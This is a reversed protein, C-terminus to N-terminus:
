ARSRRPAWKRLAQALMQQSFPKTLYDRAGLAHAEDRHKQGSRSTVVVVPIHRLGPSAAISQILEYGHMRPMELDTFVLDFPKRGLLELADHGDVALTVEAGLETLLKEAVKRVSLSDDAFLVRAPGLPGAEIAESTTGSGAASRPDLLGPVDLILILEGDGSVTVGSLLPHGTLLEGLSKVVVEEQGLLRDVAVALRREGARLLVAVGPAAEDRGREPRGLVTDLSHLIHHGDELKVRRVGASELVPVEDLDILREAFALPVAFVQGSHRLLLARTIALTLPLTITFTTGHGPDSRVRIDGGLKEIERRVVDAGLGRGSVDDVVGRTSVGPHFLADAVSPHAVETEPTIVGLKVAAEHLATLNLGAGDDAAEIVILGSEHRAALSITGVPDKGAAARRELTEVGHAVANRVLHLLPVYLKDVITKDLDVDEGITMVRVSKGERQAADRVPLRLRAFLDEVPVMRARTIEGQLGSVITGFAAADEAFQNLVEQIQAQVSEVDDAISGLSRALINVEGYQDLELEGFAGWTPASAAQMGGAAARPAAVSFENRERFREVAVNLRQHGVALQRQMGRLRTVRRLLRSRGVVLEGTLNMLGDLRESSVRVSRKDAEVRDTFRRRPASSAGSSLSARADSSMLAGSSLARGSTLARVSSDGASSRMEIPRPGGARVSAIEAEVEALRTEVYGAKAQALGRRVDDQVNLLLTALHRLPPLIPAGALEELFDELRHIVSGLPGLGVTNMSGKLTHYSRFLELLVVQPQQSEELALVHREITALLEATEEEFADWVERPVGIEVAERRAGPAPAAAPTVPVDAVAAPVAAQFPDIPPLDSAALLSNTRVILDHVGEVTFGQGSDLGRDLTDQFTDQLDGAMAAVSPLGVTAASGKLTHYLRELAIMADRDRPDRVLCRLQEELLPLGELAEQRFVQLLEQSLADPQETPASPEDFSFESPEPEPVAPPIFSEAGLTPNEDFSFESPAGRELEGTPAGNGDEFAFEQPPEGEAIADRAEEWRGMRGRFALAVEWAEDSKHDLELELMRGLAQAGELCAEGLSRSVRAQKEIQQLADSGVVALIELLRASEAMSRASVLASTGFIAHCAQTVADFGPIGDAPDLAVPTELNPSDLLAQGAELVRRIKAAMDAAFSDRVDDITFREMAM